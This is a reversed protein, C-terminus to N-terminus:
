AIMHITQGVIVLTENGNYEKIEFQEGKPVWGVVLDDFGGTYAHYREEAICEAVHRDGDLVAKVLDYDMCMAERHESNWTSWGAGFGPAYLVGVKGDKEYKKM